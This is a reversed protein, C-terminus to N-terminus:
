MISIEQWQLKKGINSTKAVKPDGFGRNKDM